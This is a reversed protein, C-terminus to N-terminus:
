DGSGVDPLNFQELMGEIWSCMVKASESIFLYPSERLKKLPELAQSLEEKVDMAEM